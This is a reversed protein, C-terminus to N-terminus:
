TPRPLEVTAVTGGTPGPVVTLAGGAAEIRLAHSALGIHGDALSRAAAGETIGDGDDTVTLRLHDGGGDLVVGVTGAHAHKAVNGLLERATRYLLADAPTREPWERVDVTATFGARAGTTAALDRLAAPLGARELVAPHLQSVTTRLLASSTTLAEDLRDFAAADGTDRADEIDQRAALVYQLAGDHLNEALERRERRELDALEAVLRARDGLLGAITTVRSRQIRSLGVCGLGVGALLLTRLLLSSWPEANAEQTIVAVAFSLLVTPVVVAACVRPRLDTAAIVPVLGFGAALVDATWSDPTLLGTLLTLATLVVLDVFLALWAFRVVTPGGGRLWVAFAVMWIAYAAVVLECALLGRGPPVALVTAALFVLLVARLVMQLRVGRRAHEAVTADLQPDPQTGPM